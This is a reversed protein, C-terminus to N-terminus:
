KSAKLFNDVVKSWEKPAEMPTLHGYGLIEQFVSGHIAAAMKESIEPDILEDLDGTIVLTPVTISALLDTSDDREALAILAAAIAAPKASTIMRKIQDIIEPNYDATSKTTLKTLMRMYVAEYGKALVDNAFTERGQKAETTDADAKTNSLILGRVDSPFQKYYALTAYGGMSTGGLFFNTINKKALEDHLALMADKLSWHYLIPAEGFGPLDVRYILLEPDRESLDACVKDYMKSTVPFAHILVLTRSVKPQSKYLHLSIM